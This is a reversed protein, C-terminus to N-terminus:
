RRKNLFLLIDKPKLALFTPKEEELREKNNFGWTVSIINIGAKKSAKIDRLEDGIYVLENNRLKKKRLLKKFVVSKGFVLPYNYVFDFCFEIDSLKLFRKINDKSNASVIGLKHNKNLKKIVEKMGPYIKVSDMNNHLEKLFERFYFPLKIKSIKHNKFFQNLTTNRLEDLSNLRKFHHKKALKNFIPVGVDITNAITGDFDFLILKYM